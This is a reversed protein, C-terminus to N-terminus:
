KLWLWGFHVRNKPSFTNFFRGFRSFYAAAPRRRSAKPQPTRLKKTFEVQARLVNQGERGDRRQSTPPPQYLRNIVGQEGHLAESDLKRAPRVASRIKRDAEARKSAKKQQTEEHKRYMADTRETLESNSVKTQHM